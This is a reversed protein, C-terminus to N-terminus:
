LPNEPTQGNYLGRSDQSQGLPVQLFQKNKHEAKNEKLKQGRNGRDM